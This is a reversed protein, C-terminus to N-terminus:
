RITVKIDKVFTMTTMNLLLKGIINEFIDQYEYTDNNKIEDHLANLTFNEPVEKIKYELSEIATVFESRRSLNIAKYLLRIYLDNLKLNKINEIAVEFDEDGSNIMDVLSFFENTSITENM